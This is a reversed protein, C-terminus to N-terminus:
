SSERPLASADEKFIYYLKEICVGGGGCVCLYISLCGTVKIYPNIVTKIDFPQTINSIEWASLVEFLPLTVTNDKIINMEPLSYDYNEGVKIYFQNNYYGDQTLINDLSDTLIFEELDFGLLTYNNGLCGLLFSFLLYKKIKTIM